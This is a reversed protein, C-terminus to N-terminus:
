ALLYPINFRAIVLIGALLVKSISYIECLKCRADPPYISRNNSISGKLVHASYLKNKIVSAKASRFKFLFSHIIPLQYWYPSHYTAHSNCCFFCGASLVNNKHFLCGTLRQECDSSCILGVARRVGFDIHFRCNREADVVKQPEYSSRILHYTPGAIFCETRVV